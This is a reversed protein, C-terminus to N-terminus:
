RIVEQWHHFLAAVGDYGLAYFRAWIFMQLGSAAILFLGRGTRTSLRSRFFILLQCAGDWVLLRVFVLVELLLGLWRSRGTTASVLRRLAQMLTLDIGLRDNSFVISASFALNASWLVMWIQNDSWGREKLLAFISVTAPILIWELTYFSPVLVATGLIRQNKRGSFLSSEPM